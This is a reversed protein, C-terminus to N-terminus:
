FQVFPFCPRVYVAYTEALLGFFFQCGNVLRCVSWAVSPRVSRDVSLRESLVAETPQFFFFISFKTGFVVLPRM